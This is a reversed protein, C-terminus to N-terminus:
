NVTVTQAQSPWTGQEIMKRGDFIVFSHRGYHPLPRILAELSAADRASVVALTSGDPRSFTWAQASGKNTVGDPRAPLNNSNLWEDIQQQFGIVLVPAASLKGNAANIKPSRHQLKSALNKAIRLVTSSQPLLITETAQNVMIERLIPPAEGPALRRFLRFDPDLTVQLPQAQMDLTFTQQQEKFDLIRIEEHEASRIAVPIRLQYAPISQELTIALQHGSESKVHSAAAIHIAPAGAQELWQSFFTQLNQGSVMEFLNQLHRWSTVKFRQTQWLAQIARNFIKEGLQDRLMLFLMATKNYGVIKSAGHTRSTFSVLPAGQGPALAAFDRLWGLRMERAAETSEREKYTYDAMFTTLGESWNGQAYDPYVGNGWWNHLVEHGLSTTRIFPLQLVNIGLYTLTPMGFGTPTPSSVVSFETFPYEGIWSEYLALYDKVSDIYSQALHNLQPHFYTRLQIQKGKNSQVTDSIIKYPGAMLDIGESPFPFEFSAQYGQESDIEELLQGAVLGRQGFPLALSVRYSALSGAIDPYWNSSKPLFTGLDGSAPESRGLTQQHDLSTDLKSLKGQWHIEIRRLRSFDFPLQWTHPVGSNDRGPGLERGDMIAHTVEFQRGLRLMLDGPKRVSIISRGDITRAIPDISVHIDYDIKNGDNQMAASVGTVPIFLAFVFIFYRILYQRLMIHEIWSRLFSPLLKWSM